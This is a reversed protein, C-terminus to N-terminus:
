TCPALRIAETERAPCQTFKLQWNTEIKNSVSVSVQCLRISGSLVMIAETRQQIKYFFVPQCTMSMVRNIVNLIKSDVYIAHGRM